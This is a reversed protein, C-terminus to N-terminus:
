RLWQLITRGRGWINSSSGVSIQDIEGPMPEWSPTGPVFRLVKKDQAVAWVTGDAAVSVHSLLKGVVEWWHSTSVNWLYVRSASNVGWILNQSGVSIQALRANSNPEAESFDSGDWRYVREDKDLAWVTGDAAVSVYTYNAIVMGWQRSSTRYRFLEDNESVAWIVSRSGASVQRFKIDQDSLPEFGQETIRGVTGSLVACVTSDEAASVWTADGQNLGVFQAPIRWSRLVPPMPVPPTHLLREDWAIVPRVGLPLVDALKRALAARLAAHHWDHHAGMETGDEAGTLLAASAAPALVGAGPSDFTGSVFLPAAGTNTARRRGATDAALVSAPLRSYRACAISDGLTDDPFIVESANIKATTRMRELITCYELTAVGGGGTLSGFLVSRAALLRQANTSAFAMEGVACRELQLHGATLTLKGLRLKELRLTQGAEPAVDGGPGITLDQKVRVSGPTRNRIVVVNGSQPDSSEIRELSDHIPHHPNAWDALSPWAIDIPDPVCLGFPPPLYIILAKPHSRGYRGAPDPARVDVTRRSVDEYSGPFCPAGHPEHLRWGTPAKGAPAPADDDPPWPPPNAQFRGQSAGIEGRQARVSRSTARLDVTGVALGPHQAAELPNVSSFARAADPDALVADIPHTPLGFYTAPLIADDPSATVVVRRWGEQFEAESGAIAEVIEAIAVLTGKRRSWRVASAVEQRKGEAFLSVPVAGVLDALYPIIWSQCARGQEPTDAFHDAYLQELTNRARDLLVGHSDLYNALHGAKGAPPQRDRERHLEPLLEFLHKGYVSQPLM